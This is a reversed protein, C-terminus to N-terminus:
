KTIMEEKKDTIKNCSIKNHIAFLACSIAFFLGCLVIFVAILLLAGLLPDYPKASFLMDWMQKSSLFPYPYFDVISGRIVSFIFYCLPYILTILASKAIPLKDAKLPKFWVATFLVPTILHNWYNVVNSFWIGKEMPFGGNSFPLLVCFYIIGTICIYLTVAGRLTENHTFKYLKKSGFIGCAFLILYLDVFINSQNTFYFLFTPGNINNTIVKNAILEDMYPVLIQNYSAIHHGILLLGFIGYILAVTAFAKSHLFDKKM